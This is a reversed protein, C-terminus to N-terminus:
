LIHKSDNSDNLNYLLIGQTVVDRQVSLPADDINRVDANCIGCYREIEDEIELELMFRQYADLNCDPALVLAIDVDSTPLTAGVAVSGFMYALMVPHKRLIAPLCQKLQDIIDEAVAELSMVNRM